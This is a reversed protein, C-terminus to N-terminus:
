AGEKNRPYLEKVKKISSFFPESKPYRGSNMGHWLMDLQDEMKPYNEARLKRYSEKHKIKM